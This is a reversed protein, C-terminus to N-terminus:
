HDQKSRFYRYIWIIRIKLASHSHGRVHTLRTERREWTIREGAIKEIFADFVSMCLNSLDLFAERVQSIAIEFSEKDREVILHELDGVLIERAIGVDTTIPITGVGMAELLPLGTGEHASAQILIESEAIKGLVEENPTRTTSSDILWFPCISTFEKKLPKVIECFGKHDVFGYNSGWKSNGVWIIGDRSLNLARIKM